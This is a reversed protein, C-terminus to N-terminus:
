TSKRTYDVVDLMQVSDIEYGHCYCEKSWNVVPFRYKHKTLSLDLTVTRDVMGKALVIEVLHRHASPSLGNKSDNRQCDKKKNKPENTM